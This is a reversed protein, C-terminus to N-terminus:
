NPWTHTSVHAVYDGYLADSPFPVGDFCTALQVVAQMPCHDSNNQHAATFSLVTLTWM